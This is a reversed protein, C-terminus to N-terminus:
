KKLRAIEDEYAKITARLVAIEARLTEILKDSAMCQETLSEIKQHNEEVKEKLKDNEKRLESIERRLEDRMDNMVGRVITFAQNHIEADVKAKNMKESIINKKRAILYAFIATIVPPVITVIINSDIM